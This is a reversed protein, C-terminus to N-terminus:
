DFDEDEFNNYGLAKRASSYNGSDEIEDEVESEELAEDNPSAKQINPSNIASDPTVPKFMDSLADYNIKKSFKKALTQRAAEEATAAEIPEKKERKKRPKKVKVVDKTDTELKRKEMQEELYDKNLDTWVNTRLEIEFQNLLCTSVEDDDLDSWEVEDDPVELIEKQKQSLPALLNQSNENKIQLIKTPVILDDDVAEDVGDLSDIVKNTIEETKFCPPNSEQELWVDNFEEVTLKASPTQQFEKLRKRITGLCVKVVKAVENPDLNTIENMRAAILLSAGCLGNPRRGVQLWDRKMRSVLRLATNTVVQTNEGFDLKAAFRPIYLSPDILPIEVSLVRTLKLFTNGLYYVNTRLAEAFDILLHSTKETRCVIYLCAAAVNQAKRGRTFNNELALIFWRHAMDVHHENLKVVSALMQIRRRGIGITVQRSEQANLRKGFPNNMMRLGGDASVFQGQLATGGNGLEQFTVESVITNEELVTGCNSCFAIGEAGNIEIDVSSCHPCSLSNQQNSQM